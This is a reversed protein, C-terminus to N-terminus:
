NRKRNLFIALIISRLSEWYGGTDTYSEAMRSALEKMDNDSLADVTKTIEKINTNAHFEDLIDQKCVSTIEYMKMRSPKKTTM